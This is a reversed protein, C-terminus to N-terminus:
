SFVCAGYECAVLVPSYTSSNVNAGHEILAVVMNFNNQWIAAQLPAIKDAPESNGPFENSELMVIVVAENNSFIADYFKSVAEESQSWCAPTSLFLFLILIGKLMSFQIHNIKNFM